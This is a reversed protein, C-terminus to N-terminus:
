VSRIFVACLRCSCCWPLSCQFQTSGWKQSVTQSDRDKLVLSWHRRDSWGKPPCGEYLFRGTSYGWWQVCAGCPFSRSSFRVPFWLCASLTSSCTMCTVFLQAETYNVPLVQKASPLHFSFYVCHLHKIDFPFFHITAISRYSDTNTQLHTRVRVILPWTHKKLEKVWSM